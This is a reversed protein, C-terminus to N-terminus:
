IEALDYEEIGEALDHKANASINTSMNFNSIFNLSYPLRPYYM